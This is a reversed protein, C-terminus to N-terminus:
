TTKTKFTRKRKENWDVLLRFTHAKETNLIKINLKRKANKNQQILVHMSAINKMRLTATSAIYVM